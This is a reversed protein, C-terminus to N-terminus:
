NVVPLYQVSSDNIIARGKKTNIAFVLNNLLIRNQKNYYSHNIIENKEVIDIQEDKIISKNAKKTNNDKIIINKKVNKKKQKNHIITDDVVTNDIYVTDVKNIINEIRNQPLRIALTIIFLAVMAAAFQYAPLKFYLIKYIKKNNTNKKINIYNNLLINKIDKNIEINNYEIVLEKKTYLISNRLQTYEYESIYEQVYKKEKESLESFDKEILIPELKDAINFLDDKM